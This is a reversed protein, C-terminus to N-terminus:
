QDDPNILHWMIVDRWRGAIKLYSPAV